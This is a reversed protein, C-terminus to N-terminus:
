EQDILANLLSANQRVLSEFDLERAEARQRGARAIAELACVVQTLQRRRSSQSKSRRRSRQRDASSEDGDAEEDGEDDEDEEEDDEDVTEQVTKLQQVGSPSVAEAGAADTLATRIRSSARRPPTALGRLAEAVADVADWLQAEEIEQGDSDGDDRDHENAAWREVTM